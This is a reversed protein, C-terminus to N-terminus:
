YRGQVPIDGTTGWPFQATTGTSSEIRYWQFNSPRYVSIDIKRDGDYDGPVPVDGSTGFATITFGGDSSRWIYWVGTSPRWVAIDTKLDGDYDEQVPIDGELGFAAIAAQGDSSRNIYWVGTSPRWIALDGLGDGDYDGTVPKDGSSGWHEIRAGGDTSRRIYWNGDSPRFVTVDYKGDGDYDYAAPIDGNVGWQVTVFDFSSNNKSIYWTGNSPRFVALEAGYDGFFDAAVLTDSAIGFQAGNTLYPSAYWKTSSPRFIAPYSIGLPQSYLSTTFEFPIGRYRYIKLPVDTLRELLIDTEWNFGSGGVVVLKGDPQLVLNASDSGGGLGTDLYRGSLTGSGTFKLVTIKGGSVSSRNKSINTTSAVALTGNPFEVVDALRDEEGSVADVSVLGGNGFSSDVGGNSTLRTLKVDAHARFLYDGPSAYFRHEGAVLLRDDALRLLRQSEDQGFDPSVFGADMIGSATFRFVKAAPASTSTATLVVYNGNSQRDLGRIGVTLLPHIIYGAQDGFNLDLSGGAEYRILFLRPPYSPQPYSQPSLGVAVIKGDSQCIIRELSDAALQNINPRHIGDGSFSTDPSGDENFRLMLGDNNDAGVAVIKGDAQRAVDNIVRAFPATSIFPISLQAVGNIGYTLDTTGDSNFRALQYTPLASPSSYNATFVLFKGDPLLFSKIATEGGPTARIFRGGSGFAPDLQASVQTSLFIGVLIAVFSTFTTRMIM